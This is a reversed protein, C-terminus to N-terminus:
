RIRRAPNGVYVGPEDIDAVVTAGAGILCSPSVSVGHALTAGAGIMCDDGLTVSGSVTAGPAVHVHDGLRCDHDVTSNTNLICHSGAITGSGVVAGDFVATGAGLQVDENVVARPSVVVPSDFGLASIERQLRVRAASADTKGLGIVASCCKHTRLVDPLMSDDGLYPVQLIPGKDQIDTYGLIEWGSKKLLSILSKAHGGGGVVVIDAV